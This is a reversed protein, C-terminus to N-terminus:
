VAATGTIESRPKTSFNRKQDAETPIARDALLENMWRQQTQFSMMVEGSVVPKGTVSSVNDRQSFNILFLLVWVSALGTWIRRCPRILELWLQTPFALLTAALAAARNPEQSAECCWDALVERRIADLKPGAAQHRALLIKRPTKM